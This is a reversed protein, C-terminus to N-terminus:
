RDAEELRALHTRRVRAQANQVVGRELAIELEHHEVDWGNVTAVWGLGRRRRPVVTRGRYILVRRDPATLQEHEEPEPGFLRLVEELTTGGPALRALAEHSVLTGTRRAARGHPGIHIRGALWAGTRRAAMAVIPGALNGLAFFMIPILVPAWSQWGSSYGFQVTLVQPTTGQRPDLFTSVVETSELTESMRRSATRPFIDQIKLREADAFDLLLESPEDALRVLRDRNELYLPFMARPRVDDFTLSVTYRRGWFANEIWTAKRPKVLRSGGLHLGILFTRNALMPTWPIRVYTVPTTLGLPGGQRVFTVFPAGGAIPTSPQAEQRYLSQAFLPLRGNGIVTFGREEVYRALAPDPPGPATLGEVEDPWLLYLDQEIEAGSRTPPIVLSWLVEIRAAAPAPAVSARVFLPGITFDPNPRAALFVQARAPVAAALVTLLAAALGIGKLFRRV